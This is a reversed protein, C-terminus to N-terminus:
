CGDGGVCVCVCGFRLIGGVMSTSETMFQLLREMSVRTNEFAEVVWSLTGVVLVSFAVMSKEITSSGRLVGM